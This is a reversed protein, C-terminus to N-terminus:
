TIVMLKLVAHAIFKGTEESQEFFSPATEVGVHIIMFNALQIRKKNVVENVIPRLQDIALDRRDQQTALRLNWSLRATSLVDYGDDFIVIQENDVGQSRDAVTQSVFQEEFLNVGKTLDASTLTEMYTAFEEIFNLTNLKELAM